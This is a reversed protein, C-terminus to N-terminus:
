SIIKVNEKLKNQMKLWIVELGKHPRIFVKFEIILGNKWKIYDIGNLEVNDLTAKFEGYMSNNDTIENVYRFDTDNFVDVAALLYKLVLKKGKQPSYVVPSYFVADKDIILHLKQSQGNEIIRKWKDIVLM